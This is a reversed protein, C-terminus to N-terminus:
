PEPVESNAVCALSMDQYTRRCSAVIDDVRSGTGQFINVRGSTIAIHFQGRKSICQASATIGECLYSPAAHSWYSNNVAAVAAGAAVLAGIVLGAIFRRM